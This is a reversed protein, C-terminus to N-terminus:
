SRKSHPFVERLIDDYGGTARPALQIFLKSSQELRSFLLTKERLNINIIQVVDREEEATTIFNCGTVRGAIGGGYQSTVV